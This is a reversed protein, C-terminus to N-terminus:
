FGFETYSNQRPSRQGLCGNRGIHALQNPQNERCGRCGTGDYSKINTQSDEISSQSNPISSQSDEISTQSNPISNPINDCTCVELHEPRPITFNHLCGDCLKPGVDLVITAQSDQSASTTEQEINQSSTAM